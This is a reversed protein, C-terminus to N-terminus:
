LELDGDDVDERDGRVFDDYGQRERHIDQDTERM